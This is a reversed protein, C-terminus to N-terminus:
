YLASSLLRRYRVVLEGGDGLLRFLEIMAKRAQERLAGRDRRVVELLLDLAQEHAGDAVLRHALQLRLEQNAPQQQLGAELERAPPLAQAKQWREIRAALEDGRANRTREPIGQMQLGAQAYAQRALLLEVLDLRIETQAPELELAERLKQEARDLEGARAAAQAATRL